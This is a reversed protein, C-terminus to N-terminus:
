WEELVKRLTDKSEREEFWKRLYRAFYDVELNVEEGVKKEGLTTSSATHPVIIFQVRGKELKQITLSVGDVALSGKEVLYPEIRSPYSIGLIFEEKRRKELIVGKGDVHGTVLHGGLPKDLTLARELNVRRGRVVKKLTTNERTLSSVDVRFFPPSVERVTLCVGDVSISDGPSLRSVLGKAEISLTLIGGRERVEGVMGIEEVIGTFM